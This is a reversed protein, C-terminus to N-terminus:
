YRLVTHIISLTKLKFWGSNHGCPSFRLLRSLVSLFSLPTELCHVAQLLIYVDEVFCSSLAQLLHLTKFIACQKTESKM